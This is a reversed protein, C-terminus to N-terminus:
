NVVQITIDAGDIGLTRKQRAVKDGATVDFQYIGLHGRTELVGEANTKEDFKTLWEGRVLDRWVKASPKDSWDARFMGADPKWHKREWFGWKTFGTVSPHSYLAILFDREYDAQLEEDPTNVDFETPQIELGATALLDLDSLVDEPARVQRGVHSQVGLGDIPAGVDQLRKVQELYLKIRDPSRRSNLMSYENIFLKTHPDTERAVKFWEAAETEPMTKFYDREHLMENIVDYSSILGKNETVFDRIHEKILLPLEARDEPMERVRIPSFRDGPWVLTHARLQLGQSLLWDRARIAEARSAATGSWKPWKMGNEIVATDFMELLKERYMKADDTENLIFSSDVSTGFQFAPRILRGNVQAGAIPKGEADIVRIKMPATRIKEIRELAAKRWAADPERGRYTFRTQPLSAVEVQKGFNLVELSAIEIAQPITGASIRIQAQGPEADRAATFPIEYLAWDPGATLPLTTHRTWDPDTQFVDFDFIAEGSEQRAFEARVFFRALLVDGRVLPEASRWIVSVHDASQPRNTTEVRLVPASGAPTSWAATAPPTAEAENRFTMTTVPDDPMINVPNKATLEAELPQPAPAAAATIAVALALCGVTLSRPTPYM